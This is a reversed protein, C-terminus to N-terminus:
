TKFSTEATAPTRLAATLTDSNRRLTGPSLPSRSGLAASMSQRRRLPQQGKLDDLSIGLMDCLEKQAETMARFESSPSETTPGTHGTPLDTVIGLGRRLPIPPVPPIESMHASRVAPSPTMSGVSSRQSRRHTSSKLGAKAARSSSKRALFVRSSRRSSGERTSPTMQDARGALDDFDQAVEQAQRWAEDREAELTSVQERLKQGEELHKKLSKNLKHLAMILASSSHVDRLHTLQGLQTTVDYLEETIQDLNDTVETVEELLRSATGYESAESGDMMSALSGLLMRRRRVNLKYNTRLEASLAELRDIEEPLAENLIDLPLLRIASVDATQRIATSVLQQLQQSSFTWEAAEKTLGRFKVPTTQFRPSSASLTPMSPRRM